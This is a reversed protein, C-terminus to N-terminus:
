RDNDEDIYMVEKTDVDNIDYSTVKMSGINIMAGYDWQTDM